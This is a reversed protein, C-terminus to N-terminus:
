PSVAFCNMSKYRLISDKIVKNWATGLHIRGTTYPPGDVFFFKKGGVRLQRVKHYTDDREWLSRIQNELERANYQGAVESIM